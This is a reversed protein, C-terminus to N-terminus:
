ESIVSDGTKLSIYIGLICLLTFILFIIRTSKLFALYNGPTIQVRGIYLSFILMVIGMSLMQGTLRMTGRTASAVGYFKKEVSSMIANTNPSSFLAFGFGLIVISLIIFELSTNKDLLILLSIGITTIAMGLSAIKRPEIRDSLKGAYPSFVTMIFPQSLLVFGTDQPSLGKIYQLYLSLLFGVSFTASYSIFAAINSYTFVRNRRFIDMDLVPSEAKEEFKIFLSIGTIGAVILLLGSDRPLVSFGYMLFIISLGYILSGRFDFKEGKAETMDEELKLITIAIVIIGLAVNVIFISRWGFNQTLIGGLVPGITLGLYVAAINIGLARGREGAGFASTLMAMGTAFIMAGGVGQMIRFIILMYPTTSLAAFLSSFTYIVIGWVFTRKRGYIDGVRGFPVIFVASALFFSTAVWSLLIADMSFEKGISPLAVNLSSGMFAILFYSIGAVILTSNKASSKNM